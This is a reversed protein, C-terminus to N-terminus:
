TAIYVLFTLYGLIIFYIGEKRFYETMKFPNYMGIMFPLLIKQITMNPKRFFIIAVFFCGFSFVFYIYFADM